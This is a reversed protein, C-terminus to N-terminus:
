VFGPGPLIFFFQTHPFITYTISDIVAHGYQSLPFPRDTAHPHLM